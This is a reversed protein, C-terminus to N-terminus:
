NPATREGFRVDPFEFKQRIHAVPETARVTVGTYTGQFETHRTTLTVPVLSIDAPFPAYSTPAANSYSLQLFSMVHPLHIESVPRGALEVTFRNHKSRVTSRCSLLCGRATRTLSCLGVGPVSTVEAGDLPVFTHRENGYLTLYVSGHVHVPSGRIRQYFAQGTSVRLSSSIGDTVVQIEPRQTARWIDGDRGELVASIGDVQPTLGPSLGSIRIPVRWDVGGAANAVARTASRRDGDLEVVIDVKDPPYVSFWAQIAFAAPWSLWVFPLFAAVFGGAALFRAASANRRYYQLLIVGVATSAVLFFSLFYRIWGLGIWAADSESPPVALSWIVAALAAASTISVLQLFGTTLACIAAVPIAFATTLLLKNWLLTGFTQGLEFGYNCVVIADSVLKPLVIFATICLVKAFLLSRPAYPRTIWFQRDGSLPENHIVRAILILWVLPLLYTLLESAFRGASPSARVLDSGKAVTLTFVGTVLLVVFIEFQLLRVDKRFIHFAQRM